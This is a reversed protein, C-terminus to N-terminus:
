QGPSRGGLQEVYDRERQRITRLERELRRRRAVRWRSMGALEAELSDGERKTEALTRALADLMSSRFSANEAV